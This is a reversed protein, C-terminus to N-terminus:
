SSANPCPRPGEQMRCSAHNRRTILALMAPRTAPLRLTAPLVGSGRWGKNEHSKPAPRISARSTDVRAVQPSLGCACDNLQLDPRRHAAPRCIRLSNLPHCPHRTPQWGRKARWLLDFSTLGPTRRHKRGQRGNRGNPLLPRLRRGGGWWWRFGWCFLRHCLPTMREAVRRRAAM